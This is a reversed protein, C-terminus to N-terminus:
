EDDDGELSWCFYCNDETEPFRRKCIPCEMKVGGQTFVAELGPNEMEEDYKKLIDNNM